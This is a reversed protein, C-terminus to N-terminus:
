YNMSKDSCQNICKGNLRSADGNTGRPTALTTRYKGTWYRKM